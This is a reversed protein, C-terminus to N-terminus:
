AVQRTRLLNANAGVFVRKVLVLGGLFSYFFLVVILDCDVLPFLLSESKIRWGCMIRDRRSSWNGRM